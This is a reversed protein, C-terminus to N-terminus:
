MNLQYYTELFVILFAVQILSNWYDKAEVRHCDDCLQHQITFEIVFQQQLVAGSHIEKEVTLKVKIRKSHEETWLFGANVLRVQNLGKVKKLCLRLLERSELAAKLWCSPPDLYRECGKCFCLPASKPIDETIDVKTRICGICQNSPNPDIPTGCECCLCKEKKSWTVAFNYM